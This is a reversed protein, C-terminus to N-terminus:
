MTVVVAGASAADQDLMVTLYWGFLVLLPVYPVRSAAPTLEVDAKRRFVGGYRFHVLPEDGETQFTFSTRWFSTTAKFRRGDPFHLTGGNAWTNNEFVAVDVDSGCARIGARNQWFGVRKFTWCGDGSEATAFTGWPSRFKLTAVLTEGARLEHELSFAGVQSWTLGPGAAHVIKQM